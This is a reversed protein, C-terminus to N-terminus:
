SAEAAKTLLQSQAEDNGVTLSAARAITAEV